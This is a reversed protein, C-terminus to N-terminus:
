FQDAAANVDTYAKEVGWQARDTGADTVYIAGPALWVGVYSPESRSQYDRTIFFHRLKKADVELGFEAFASVEEDAEHDNTDDTADWGSYGTVTNLAKVFARIDPVRGKAPETKAEPRSPSAGNIKSELDALDLTLGAEKAKEKFDNFARLVASHAGTKEHYDDFESQRSM